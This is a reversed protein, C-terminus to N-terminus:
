CYKYIQKAPQIQGDDTFYKEAMLELCGTVRSSVQRGGSKSLTSNKCKGVITVTTSTAGMDYFM